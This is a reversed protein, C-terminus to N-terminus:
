RKRALGLVATKPHVLSWQYWFTDFGSLREPRRAGSRAGVWAERRPDYRAGSAPHRWTGGERVFPSPSAYAGTSHFVAVGAPRHLFLHTRADLRLAAGGEFARFPIAYARAGRQLAYVPEKTPLRRDKAELGRFGKRSRFYRTYPNFPVDQRGRVSLVKTDPHRAVWRKWQTKTAVPLERLRTGKAAGAIARGQMMSWYSDTEFDQMVRAAHILGGSPEFAFTRGNYSRAYM